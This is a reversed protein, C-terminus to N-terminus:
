EGISEQCGPLCMSELVILEAPDYSGFSGSVQSAESPSLGSINGANIATIAERLTLVTNFVTDDGSSNVILTAPVDRAELSVLRPQVRATTKCITKTPKLWRTLLSRSM